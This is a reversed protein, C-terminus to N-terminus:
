NDDTKEGSNDILQEIYSEYDSYLSQMNIFQELSPFKRTKYNRLLFSDGDVKQKLSQYREPQVSLLFGMLGMSLHNYVLVDLLNREIILYLKERPVLHKVHWYTLMSYYRIISPGANMTEMRKTKLSDIKNTAVKWTLYLPLTIVKNGPLLGLGNTKISVSESLDAISAIINTDLNNNTNLEVSLRLIANGIDFLYNEDIAIGFERSQEEEVIKKFKVILLWLQDNTTIM